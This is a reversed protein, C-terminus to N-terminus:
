YALTNYRGFRMEAWAKEDTVVKLRRSDDFALRAALILMQIGNVRAQKFLPHTIQQPPSLSGCLANM